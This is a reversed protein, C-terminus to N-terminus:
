VYEAILSKLSCQLSELRNLNVYEPLQKFNNCNMTVFVATKVVERLLILALIGRM